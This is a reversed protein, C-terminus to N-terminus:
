RISPTVDLGTELLRYEILIDIFERLDRQASTADVNFTRSIESVIEAERKRQKLLELITSGVLNLNFMQGERLDLIVAGDPGHTSRVDDSIRYM